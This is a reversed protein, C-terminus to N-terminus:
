GGSIKHHLKIKAFLNSKVKEIHYKVTDNNHKFNKELEKIEQFDDEIKKLMLSENVTSEKISKLYLRREESFPLELTGKTLLDKAEFLLRQAHYLGKFEKGVEAMKRQRHGATSLSIELQEIVYNVKSRWQFLRTGIEITPHEVNPGTKSVTFKFHDPNDKHFKQIAAWHHSLRIGNKLPLTKLFNVFDQRYKHHYINVSYRRYEKKFFGMFSGIDRVLLNEKDERLEKMLPTDFLIKDNPTFLAEMMNFDGSHLLELYKPLSYLNFDVDENTNKGKKNTKFDLVKFLNKKNNETFDKAPPLYIGRFDRDSNESNLDFFHSGAVYLFILKSGPYDKKFKELFLELYENM